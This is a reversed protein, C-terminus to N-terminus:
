IFEEHHHIEGCVVLTTGWSEHVRVTSSRYASVRREYQYDVSTNHFLDKEEKECLKLYEKVNTDM